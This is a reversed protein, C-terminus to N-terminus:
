IKRRRGLCGSSPGHGTGNTAETSMRVTGGTGGVTAAPLLCSGAHNSYHLRRHQQLRQSLYPCCRPNLPLGPPTESSQSNPDLWASLRASQTIGLRTLIAKKPTSYCGAQDTSISLTIRTLDGQLLTLLEAAWRTRPVDYATLHKESHSLDAEAAIVECHYSPHETDPTGKHGAAPTPGGVTTTANSALSTRCHPRCDSYCHTYIWNTPKGTKTPM